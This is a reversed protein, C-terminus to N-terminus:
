ANADEKVQKAGPLNAAFAQAEKAAKRRAEADALLQGARETNIAATGHERQALEELQDAIKTLPRTIKHIDKELGLLRRFFAVISKLM